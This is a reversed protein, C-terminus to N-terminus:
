LCLTQRQGLWTRWDAQLETLSKGYIQHYRAPDAETTQMPILPTLDYLAKFQKQGHGHILFKVFSASILYSYHRRKNKGQESAPFAAELGMNDGLFVTRKTPVIDFMELKVAALASSKFAGIACEIRSGDAPYANINGMKEELYAPFGEALFRVANPAHVHAIEHLIAAARDKVRHPPFYMHGRRGDWVFLLAESHPQKEFVEVEFDGPFLQTFNTSTLYQELTEKRLYFDNKFQKVAKADGVDKMKAFTVNQALCPSAAALISVLGVVTPVLARVLAGLHTRVGLGSIGNPWGQRLQSSPSVARSGFDTVPSWSDTL